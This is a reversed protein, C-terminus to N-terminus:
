HPSRQPAPATLAHLVLNGTPVRASSRTCSSAALIDLDDARRALDDFSRTLAGNRPDLLSIGTLFGSLIAPTGAPTGYDLHAFNTNTEVTHCGSCTNLALQFLADDRITAPPPSIPSPSTPVTLLSNPADWLTPAPAAGALFDQGLFSDPVLHQAAPPGVLNPWESNVYKALLGTNNHGNDPEQKVTTQALFGGADPLFFERLEWFPSGALLENTRVQGIASQNPRSPAAGASAFVDTLSALDDNYQTSNALNKWKIAWDRVNECGDIPVKYEMILTMRESHCEGDHLAFVFRGEGADGGGYTASGDSRLDARLVIGLLRFPSQRPDLSVGPGGSRMEWQEIIQQYVNPRAPVGFNNVTQLSAWHKFLHKIYDSTSASGNAVNAMLTWFTWSGTANGMPPLGARRCAWTRTPDSVVSLDTIMLSRAPDTPLLSSSPSITGLPLGTFNISLREGLRLQSDNFPLLVSAESDDMQSDILLGDAMETFSQTGIKQRTGAAFLPRESNKRRTEALTQNAQAFLEFDFPVEATFEGDGARSDFKKGDDFFPVPEGEVFVNLVEQNPASTFRARLVASGEGVRELVINTPRPNILDLIESEGKIEAGVCPLAGACVVVAGFRIKKTLKSFLMHSLNKTSKNMSDGLIKILLFFLPM